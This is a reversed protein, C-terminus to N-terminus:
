SAVTFPIRVPAGRTTAGKLRRHERHAFVDRVTRLLMHSIEEVRSHYRFDDDGGGGGGYCGGNYCGGNYGGDGGGGGGSGSGPRVPRTPSLTAFANLLTSSFRVRRM